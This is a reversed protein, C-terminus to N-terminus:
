GFVAMPRVQAFMRFTAIPRGSADSSSAPSRRVFFFARAIKLESAM